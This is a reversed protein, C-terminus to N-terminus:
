CTTPRDHGILGDCAPSSTPPERRKCTRRGSLTADTLWWACREAALHPLPCIREAHLVPPATWRRTGSTGTSAGIRPYRVRHPQRRPSRVRHRPRVPRVPHARQGAATPVQWGFRDRGDSPTSAPRDPLGSTQRQERGQVRSRPTRDCRPEYRTSLTATCTVVAPIHSLHRLRRGGPTPRANGSNGTRTRDTTGHVLRHNLAYQSAPCRNV